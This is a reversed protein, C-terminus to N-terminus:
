STQKQRYNSLLDNLKKHVQETETDADQWWEPSWIRIIEWGLNRLIQERVIDRDRATASSHYAAGDCEIGALYAGPADPNVVGLDIRFRSVGIQPMVNWGKARLREAVAEEFPSEHSGVSGQDFAPLAISGREAYDLFAKLHVVGHHAVGEVSLQEARFSSYVVMEQRARTVAVNLRRQGGDRNLAGFNRTLRGTQDFGFTISFLIVDREDGQVNELNKVITPATRADDFFWELEPHDQRAKDFLDELLKQQPQNFTIIGLTPRQDEPLKLAELMRQVADAIIANAEIRNTRSGGRDFVGDAIHKLKVAQDRTVASPFTILQNEYYHWNSFAILSEHQSRYHWSLQLTPLGSARAEDLISELDREIDEIEESEQDPEARSFFSTPPLQRPDGVIITQRARAIAGIADWTTIQSAEDFIVVDFLQQSAPLYQAISLPSMLVCPALKGFSEPMASVMERISRSPRQLQMQHRLVGLESQKGVKDPAPISRDLSHAVHTAAARRAETDLKRFEAIAAEHSFGRFQSLVKERSIALPLWWRAYALPLVPEIETPALSGNELAEVFPLLGHTECRSRISHWSTWRRLATRRTRITAAANLADALITTSSRNIPSGGAVDRLSQMAGSFDALAKLFNESAAKLRNKESDSALLAALQAFVTPPNSNFRQLPQLSELIKKATKLWTELQQPDTQTGQWGPIRNAAPSTQIQNLLKQMQLLAPIDTDPNAVGSAAYTQLLKRVRRRAFISLPWFRISAERYDRDLADAPIRPLEDESYNAAAQQRAAQWETLKKRLKQTATALMPFDPEFVQQFHGQAASVLSRAIRGLTEMDDAAADERSGCGIINCFLQLTNRLAVASKELLEVRQVLNNEWVPTWESTRLFQPPQNGELSQFTIGLERVLNELEEWAAKSHQISDPWNLQPAFRGPNSVTIGMARFITWGSSAERHLTHVYANLLDRQKQLKNNIGTWNDTSRTASAAWSDQMQQLFRRREARSSHLELCLEGLGHQQLRRHVVELAATKEAVFLVTKKRALCQAIMNAITQSKGTGPPGILVFDHGEAAAAMAALQSSDAPLPHVLEVSKYKQDLQRSNPFPSSTGSDFAQEPNEVLHRVVRNQRLQDLRDALDKWMLYRVFSFTALAAEETVEFGPVDRIGGRVHQLIQAVDIGDTDTPLSSELWTLDKEFDRRIMQLLTSNFRTEDEHRSLKYGSVASARTLKVPILLLPASYATEDAPSKKWRLFGMVLFLTNSGGEALDNRSRRYLDTLRANLEDVPLNAALEGRQLADVTFARDLDEHNRQLHLAADRGAHPNLEPLSIIALPNGSAIRDELLSLSPCHFSIGHKGTRFNLLRNRLSLDLLKRQWRQIRGEPTTPREEISEIPLEAASPMAPLPLLESNQNNTASPIQSPRHSALPLVRSRRARQIDIAAIFDADRAIDLQQEARLRAQDFTSVPRTTILTTEFLLLERSQLAKRVELPDKEVIQGFTRPTIWVGAFCHGKTLLIVPHLGVAELTAAFLLTSDLCTALRTELVEAPLRTKQGATEFSAPPNAYILELGSMASWVSATLMIARAPDRSQYGDFAPPHGHDQLVSAASRLLKPIAPDNPLVFAALLEAMAPYGGWEQRALVRLESSFETIVTPGRLLRFRIIARESENLGALYDPDLELDRNNVPLTSGPALRDFKWQCQRAFAPQADFELVLGTLTEAGLNAIELSTILPVSNQWSAYNLRDSHQIRIEAAIPPQAAASPSKQNSRQSM